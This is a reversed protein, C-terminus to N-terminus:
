FIRVMELLSDDDLRTLDFESGDEFAVVSPKVSETCNEDGVVARKNQFGYGGGGFRGHSLCVSTKGNSSVTEIRTKCQPGRYGRLELRWNSPIERFDMSAFSSSSGPVSCCTNPNLDACKISNKGRCNTASWNLWIDVASVSAIFSLFVSSFLM